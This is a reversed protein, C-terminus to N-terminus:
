DRLNLMGQGPAPQKRKKSRAEFQKIPKAMKEVIEKIKRENYMSVGHQKGIVAGAHRGATSLIKGFSRKAQKEAEEVDPNAMRYENRVTEWAKLVEASTELLEDMSLGTPTVKEEVLGLRDVVRALIVNTESQARQIESYNRQIENVTDAMRSVSEMIQAMQGGYSQVIKRCERHAERIVYGNDNRLMMAFHDLTRPTLLYDKIPKGKVEKGNIVQTSNRLKLSYDVGEVFGCPNKDSKFEAEFATFTNDRRSYGFIEWNEALSIEPKDDDHFQQFLVIADAKVLALKEEKSFSM